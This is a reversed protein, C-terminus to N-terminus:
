VELSVEMFPYQEVLVVVLVMQLLVVMAVM